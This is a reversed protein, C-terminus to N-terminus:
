QPKWPITIPQYALLFNDLVETHEPYRPPHALTTMILCFFYLFPSKSQPGTLNLPNHSVEEKRRGRGGEGRCKGGDASVLKRKEMEERQVCMFVWVTHLLSRRQETCQQTGPAKLASGM